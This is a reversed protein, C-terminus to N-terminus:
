TPSNNTPVMVVLSMSPSGCETCKPIVKRSTNWGTGGFRQSNNEASKALQKLTDGLLRNEQLTTFREAFIGPSEGRM